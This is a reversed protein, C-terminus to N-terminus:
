FPIYRILGFPFTEFFAPGGKSTSWKKWNSRDLRFQCNWKVKEVWKWNWYRATRQKGDTNSTCGHTTVVTVNSHQFCDIELSVKLYEKTIWFQHKFIKSSLRGFDVTQEFYGMIRTLNRCTFCSAYYWQYLRIQWRVRVHTCAVAM